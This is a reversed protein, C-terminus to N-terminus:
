LRYNSLRERWSSRAFKRSTLLNHRAISGYLILVLLLFILNRILIMPLDFFFVLSGSAATELLSYDVLLCTNKNCTNPPFPYKFLFDYEAQMTYSSPHLSIILWAIISRPCSISFHGPSPKISQIFARSPVKHSPTHSQNNYPTHTRKHATSHRQTHTTPGSGAPPIPACIQEQWHSRQSPRILYARRSQHHRWFQNRRTKWKQPLSPSPFIDSSSIIITSSSSTMDILLLPFPFATSVAAASSLRGHYKRSRFSPKSNLTSFYRGCDRSSTTDCWSIM